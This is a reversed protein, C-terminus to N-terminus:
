ILSISFSDPIWLAQVKVNSQTWTTVFDVQKPCYVVIEFDLLKASCYKHNVSFAQSQLTFLESSLSLHFDGESFRLVVDWSLDM